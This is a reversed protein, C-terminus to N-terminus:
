AKLVWPEGETIRAATGAKTRYADWATYGMQDHVLFQRRPERRTTASVHVHNTSTYAICQDVPLGQAVMERITAYLVGSDMGAITIDAAEGKRHQSRDPNSGVAISVVESRYGSTVQVPQGVRVRIPELVLQCLHALAAWIVAGSDDELGPDNALGTRTGTMESRSFHPSIM